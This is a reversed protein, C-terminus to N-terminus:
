KIFNTLYKKLIFYRKFGVEKNNEARIKYLSLCFDVRDLSNYSKNKFKQIISKSLISCENIIKINSKTFENFPKTYIKKSNLCLKQKIKKMGVRLYADDLNYLNNKKPIPVDYGSGNKSIVKLQKCYIKLGYSKTIRSMDKYDITVVYPTFFDDTINTAFINDRNNYKKFGKPFFKKIRKKILNFDSPKLVKRAIQTIFFRFTKSHYCSIYIKSGIKSDQVLNKLILSPNPAHQIWNHCSIIDYQKMFNIKKRFDHQAIDLKPFKYLKKLKKIKQVNSRLIDAAMVKAGMLCLVIAHVGPGAGTELINLKKFDNINEKFYKSFNKKHYKIQGLPLKKVSNRFQWSYVKDLYNYYYNKM